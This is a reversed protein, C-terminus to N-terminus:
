QASGRIMNEIAAKVHEPTFPLQRLRAGTADYIANGIAAPVVTIAAEGAGTAPVGTRNILVIEVTPVEVDLSLSPYTEWDTSTVRTDDWTVQEVLTRSMGQLVGGESQNRLGDPNSIPGCDLAVVFRRPHVCWSALDVDIDAVAATYGNNGEYVVCAIGRGAAMAMGDRRRNSPPSSRPQWKAAAAAAKLVDTLRPDRIHKLRFQVPDVKAHAALEDM